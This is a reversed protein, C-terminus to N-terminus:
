QKKNVLYESNKCEEIERKSKKREMNGQQDREIESQREEEKM